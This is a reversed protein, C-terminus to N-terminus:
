GSAGASWSANTGWCGAPGPSRPGARRRRILTQVEHMLAPLTVLGAMPRARYVTARYVSGSLGLGISRSAPGAHAARRTVPGLGGAGVGAEVGGAGLGRGCRGWQGPVHWSTSALPTQLSNAELLSM